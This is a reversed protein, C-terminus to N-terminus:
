DEVMAKATCASCGLDQFVTKMSAQMTEKGRKVQTKEQEQFSTHDLQELTEPAKQTGM